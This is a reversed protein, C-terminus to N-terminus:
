GICPPSMCWNTCTLRYGSGRISELQIETQFSALRRRLASIHVDVTRLGGKYAGGWVTRLLEERSIAVSPHKALTILLEFEKRRLPIKTGKIEVIFPTSTLIMQNGHLLKLHNRKQNYSSSRRLITSIRARFEQMGFPKLIYDDAGAELSEVIDNERNSSALVMVPTRINLYRICNLFSIGANKGAMDMGVILLEFTIWKLIKNAEDFTTAIYLDYTKEKHLLSEILSTVAPDDEILLVKVLM